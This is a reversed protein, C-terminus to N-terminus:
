FHMIPVIVLNDSINVDGTSVYTDIGQQQLKIEYDNPVSTPDPPMVQGCAGGKQITGHKSRVSIYVGPPQLWEGDPWYEWDYSGGWPTPPPFKELYPGDWSRNIIKDYDPPLYPAAPPYNAGCCRTGYNNASIFGPDEDPCVDPPWLGIDSYYALAGSKVARMDATLRTIKSKEIAKFANPAIVASLIAIIAIVVILEILTFGYKRM